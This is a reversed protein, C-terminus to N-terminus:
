WGRLHRGGRGGRSQKQGAGLDHGLDAEDKQQVPGHAAAQREQRINREHTDVLAQWAGRLQQLLVPARDHHQHHQCHQQRQAHLAVYSLHPVTVQVEACGKCSLPVQVDAAKQQKADSALRSISYLVGRARGQNKRLEAHEISAQRM